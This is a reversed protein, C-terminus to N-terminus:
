KKVYNYYSSICKILIFVFGTAIIVFSSIFYVNHLNMNMLKEALFIESVVGLLIVLTFMFGWMVDAFIEKRFYKRNYRKLVAEAEKDVAKELQSGTIWFYKGIDIHYCM